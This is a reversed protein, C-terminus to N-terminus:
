LHEHPLHELYPEWLDIRLTLAPDSDAGWIDTGRFAISYLWQPDEGLGHANKDPFVHTGHVREIVGPAGRAYRPLRTHGEPHMVKTRVREGVAFAAKTAAPRNAPGGRALTAAVDKAKLVRALPRAPHLAHGAEIEDASVLGREAMLRELGALWIEYYSRSLYDAPPISERAHRSADINWQGTAGMALTVALVRREWDAHFVPENEEPAVPGFGMQGGMDQAGNM